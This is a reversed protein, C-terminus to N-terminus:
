YQSGHRLTGESWLGTAQLQDKRGARYIVGSPRPLLSREGARSDCRRVRLCFESSMTELATEGGIGVSDVNSNILTEHLM